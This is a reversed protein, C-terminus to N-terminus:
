TSLLRRWVRVMDQVDKLDAHRARTAEGHEEELDNRLERLDDFRRALEPSGARHLLWAVRPNEVSLDPWDPKGGQTPRIYKELSDPAPPSAQIATGERIM